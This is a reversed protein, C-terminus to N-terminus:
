ALWAWDKGRFINSIHSPDVGFQRAISTQTQTKLLERIQLVDATTLKSKGQKEGRNTTGHQLRDAQNRKHTAWYLHKPNVCAENGKGCSHAAQLRPTAPEGHALACMLRAATHLKGTVPHHARGYGDVKSIHFPWPLCDEGAYNVHAEIWEMAPRPQKKVFHVDGHTKFRIYHKQCMGTKGGKDHHANGKCDDVSCQAFKIKM